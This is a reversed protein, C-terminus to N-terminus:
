AADRDHDTRLVTRRGAADPASVIGERQMREMIAAAPNYGIRFHRQLWSTSAKGHEVVAAVAEDYGPPADAGTKGGDTEGLPMNLVRRGDVLEITAGMRRLRLALEALPMDDDSAAASGLPTSGFDAMGLAAKYTDLLAEAEQREHTEMKRLRILARITKADYGRSKAEKYVDKVDDAIAQKEEELREIREILLRLEDAAISAAAM